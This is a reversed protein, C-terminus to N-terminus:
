NIKLFPFTEKRFSLLIGNFLVAFMFLVGLSLMLSVLPISELFAYLIEKSIFALTNLDESFILYVYDLLSSNYLDVYLSKVSVFMATGFIITGLTYISLRIQRVLRIRKQLKAFIVDVLNNDPLVKSENLIKQFRDQM